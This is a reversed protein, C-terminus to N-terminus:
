RIRVGMSRASGEVIRCAAEHSAANLDQMKTEVIEDVQQQTLTGVFKTNPRPSGSKIKLTNKILVSVPPTKLKLEFSKDKFVYIEVPIVVNGKDKTLDNYAKCFDMINVGHQGLAPGVPPAPTAKGAQIQLKIIADLQKKAM